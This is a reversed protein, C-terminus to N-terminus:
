DQLRETHDVSAGFLEMAAKVLPNERIRRQDEFVSTKPIVNEEEVLLLVTTPRGTLSSLTQELKTVGGHEQFRTVQYRRSSRFGIEWGRETVALGISDQFLEQEDSSFGETARRLTEEPSIESIPGSIPVSILESPPEFIPETETMPEDVPVEKKKDAQAVEAAEAMFSRLIGEPPVIPQKEPIQPVPESVPRPEPEPSSLVAGTPEPRTPFVKTPQARKVLTDLSFLEQLSAIRVLAMEVLIRVQTSVKMRTLTHDIIQMASLVTDLGLQQSWERMKEEASPPAYQFSEKGCGAMMAMMDRLYGFLQELLQGPDNGQCISAEVLRLVDATRRAVLFDLLTLLTEADSMGLLGQVQAMTIHSRTFSLLQELLSQGDRMSGCARRALLMMADDDATLGESEVIEKLRQAIEETSIGDFDFRQCRSLITDPIKGAETTCFIFKVHEPPEELTKLLANFAERTLMHVEDIIYIKFRARVPRISINQRLVRIEDIGRNSAGDIELVDIDDGTSISRCIECENCPTTTPGHICNLAKAFIRASSTKGVGRAGTFLYAHGIRNTEIANSLATAVRRQGVLQDFLQPRYRRAVVQYEQESAM